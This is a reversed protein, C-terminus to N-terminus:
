TYIEAEADHESIDDISIGGKPQPATECEYLCCTFRSEAYKLTELRHQLSGRPQINWLHSSAYVYLM